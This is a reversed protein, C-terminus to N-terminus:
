YRRKSSKKTKRSGKKSKSKKSSKKKRSSRKTKRSAKRSGKRSGRRSGKRSKRKGGKQKKLYELAFKMMSDKALMKLLDSKSVGEMKSEEGDKLIRVNFTGDENQVGIFKETKDGEKHYHKFFIGKERHELLEEHMVVKDDKITKNLVEHKFLLKSRSEKKSM